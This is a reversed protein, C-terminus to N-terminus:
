CHFCSMVRVALKDEWRPEILPFFGAAGESAVPTVSFAYILCANEWFLACLTADCMGHPAFLTTNFPHRLFTWFAHESDGSISIFNRM